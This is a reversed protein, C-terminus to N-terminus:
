SLRPPRKIGKLLAYAVLEALEVEGGAQIAMQRLSTGDAQLQRELRRVFTIQVRSLEALSQRAEAKTNFTNAVDTTKSFFLEVRKKIRTWEAETVEQGLRIRSIKGARLGTVAALDEPRIGQSQWLLLDANIKKLPVTRVSEASKPVAYGIKAAAELVATRTAESRPLGGKLWLSLTTQNVTKKLLKGLQEVFQSQNLDSATFFTRLAKTFPHVPKDPYDSSEDSQAPAVVTLAAEAVSNTTKLSQGPVNSFSGGAPKYTM